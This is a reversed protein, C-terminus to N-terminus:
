ATKQANSAVAFRSELSLTRPPPRRSRTASAASAAHVLNTKKPPHKKKKQTKSHTHTRGDHRKKTTKDAGMRGTSSSTSYAKRGWPCRQETQTSQTSQTSQTEDPERTTTSFSTIHHSPPNRTVSGWCCRRFRKNQSCGNSKLLVRSLCRGHAYTSGGGKTKSQGVRYVGGRQVECSSCCRKGKREKKKEKQRCTM